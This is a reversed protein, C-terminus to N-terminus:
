TFESGGTQPNCVRILAVNTGVGGRPYERM